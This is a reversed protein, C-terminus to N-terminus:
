FFGYRLYFVIIYVGAGVLLLGSVPRAWRSWGRVRKVAQDGLVAFAVSAVFLLGALGVAYAGLVVVMGVPPQVLAAGFVGLFLPLTCGMSGLAFLGGFVGMAPVSRQRPARFPVSFRPGRDMVMLVGLVLLAVGVLLGVGGFAEGLGEGGVLGWRTRVLFVGLTGVAFLALAGGAAAVGFRIGSVGSAVVSEGDDGETGTYYAAYAPLLAVACPSFFTVAGVTLAYWAWALDVVM